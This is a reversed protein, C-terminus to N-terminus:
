GHYKAMLFKFYDKATVFKVDNLSALRGILHHYSKRYEENELLVLYHTGLASFGNLDLSNKLQNYIDDEKKFADYTYSFFRYIKFERCIPKYIKTYHSRVKEWFAGPDMIYSFFRERKSSMVVGSSFLHLGLKNLYSLTVPDMTNAPPIFTEVKTDFVKELYEKGDRVWEFSMQSAQMEAGVENYRHFVGHQAIEVMGISILEKLSAVLDKNKGIPNISHFVTLEEATAKEQWERMLVVKEDNPVEYGFTNIKDSSGHIFPVTALTVPVKGLFEGYCLKLQEPTTFFSTDDDRLCIYKM